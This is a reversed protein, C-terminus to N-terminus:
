KTQSIIRIRGDINIEKVVNGVNWQRSQDKIKNARIIKRLLLSIDEDVKYTEYVLLDGGLFFPLNIKVCSYHNGSKLIIM